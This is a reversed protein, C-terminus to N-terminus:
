HSKQQQMKEIILKFRPEKKTIAVRMDDEPDLRNRPKTKISVLTSFGSECLYTTAFPVLINLASEALQPFMELQACWFTALHMSDFEMKIKKSARMEVLDDKKQDNEDMLDLTFLFPDQIWGHSDSIDGHHFYGEFSQSLVQLHEKIQMMTHEPLSTTSASVEDLKPFNAYNGCDIRNKWISLKSTFASIKERGTIMNIGKGQISTNLDNLHTFIDSLYALSLIFDESEFHVVLSSGRQKLFMEIEKRLEFVRTLVRGRSLWRVETHYLLISHKAGVENCFAKFLRHNLANGRIYNVVSVAISLVKKLKEPLSKAVLAHRHLMCHTVTIHPVEEKVRSAFGSKNGLMAPAGDTCLSGVMDLSMEHNLFFEKVINFVDVAKTTTKLPTCFLFEEVVEKDKVYRVFVLLQSCSSVDTSEDLQLSVKIPSAKVDAVVQQLIDESMDRIRSSIIDNSLPVLSLKKEAEVGLLLKAMEMACPKVLEEAVTHPKNKRACLFAVKYSAHLLPKGIPSFGHKELTGSQDFRIRKIKLTNLDNGSKAGGHRNDFHEKLRSPKLNANSLVKSCLICQPRETGDTETLCTFGHKVYDESWKRKKSM